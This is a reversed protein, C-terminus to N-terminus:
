VIVVIIKIVIPKYYLKFYIFTIDGVNNKRLIEKGIEPDKTTGFLNLFKEIERFVEILIKIIVYITTPLIPM